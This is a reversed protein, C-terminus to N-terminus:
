PIPDAVGSPGVQVNFLRMVAAPIFIDLLSGSRKVEIFDGDIQARSEYQNIEITRKETIQETGDADIKYVTRTAKGRACGSCLLVLAIIGLLAFAIIEFANALWFLLMWKRITKLM